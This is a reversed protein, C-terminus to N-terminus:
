RSGAPAAELFKPNPFQVKTERNTKDLWQTYHQQRLQGFIEDRVEALPRYGVEEARLLYYGNPQKLPGAVEGQKMAFVASRFADPINDSPRFTALDGDKARSTEDDSNEKVVKVFDAGGRVQALLKEAKAKAEDETLVKKGKISAQPADASFAVYIAKVRVQKYKEKNAEYYGSIEEPPVTTANVVENVKAQSLIMMRYYELSERNPSLQDLKQAEAMKSLKRMFAWQEIFTKRDRLAMQQNQPPLVAFIKKFDGMTLEKGDEFVAIVTAEPIDPLAPGAAPAPAQGWAVSICAFAFVSLVKM